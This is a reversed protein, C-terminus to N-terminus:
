ASPSFALLPSRGSNTRGSGARRASRSTREGPRSSVSPAVRDASHHVGPEVMRVVDTPPRNSRNAPRPRRCGSPGGASDELPGARDRRAPHSRALDDDIPADLVATLAPCGSGAAVSMRDPSCPGAAASGGRTRAGGPVAPAPCQAARGLGAPGRRDRRARPRRAGAPRGCAGPPGPRHGPRGSRPPRAARCRDRRLATRAAGCGATGPGRVGRGAGAGCRRVPGAPGGGRRRAGGGRHGARATGVLVGGGRVRRRRGGGDAM